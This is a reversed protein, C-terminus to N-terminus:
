LLLFSKIYSESSLRKTNEFSIGCIIAYGTSSRIAEMAHTFIDEPDHTHVLLISIIPIMELTLSILTMRTKLKQSDLVEITSRAVAVSSMEFTKDPELLLFGKAIVPLGTKLM